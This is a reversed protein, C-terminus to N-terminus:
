KDIAKALVNLVRNFLTPLTSMMTKKRIKNFINQVIICSLVLPLQSMVHFRKNSDRM